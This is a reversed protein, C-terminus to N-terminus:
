VEAQRPGSESRSHFTCLIPCIIESDAHFIETSKPSNPVLLRVHNAEAVVRRIRTSEGSVIAALGEMFRGAKRSVLLIDGEFLVPKMSDDNVRLYFCDRLESEPLPIFSGSKKLVVNGGV